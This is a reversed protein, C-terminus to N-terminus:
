DRKVTKSPRESMQGLDPCMNSVTGKFLHAPTKFLQLVHRSIFPRTKSETYNSLIQMLCLCVVREGRGRQVQRFGGEGELQLCCGSEDQGTPSIECENKVVCRKIHAAGRTIGKGRRCIFDKWDQRGAAFSSALWRGAIDTVIEQLCNPGKLPFNSEIYAGKSLCCCYFSVVTISSGRDASPRSLEQTHSPSSTSILWGQLILMQALCDQCIFGVKSMVAQCWMFIVPMLLPQWIHEQWQSPSNDNIIHQAQRQWSRNVTHISKCTCIPASTMKILVRCCVPSVVPQCEM